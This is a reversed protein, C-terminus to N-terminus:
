AVRLQQAQTREDKAYLHARTLMSRAEACPKFCMRGQMITPLLAGRLSLSRFAEHVKHQELREFPFCTKWLRDIEEAHAINHRETILLVQAETHSHVVSLM